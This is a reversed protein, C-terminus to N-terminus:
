YDVRAASPDDGYHPFCYPGPVCGANECLPHGLAIRFVIDDACQEQGVGFLEFLVQSELTVEHSRPPRRQLKRQPPSCFFQSYRWPQNSGEIDETEDSDAAITAPVDKGPPTLADQRTVFSMRPLTVVAVTAPLTGM